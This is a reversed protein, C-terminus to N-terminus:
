LLGIMFAIPIATYRPLMWAAAMHFLQALTVAFIFATGVRLLLFKFSQYGNLEGEKSLAWGGAVSAAIIIAVYPSVVEAIERSAIYTIIAVVLGILDLPDPHAQM